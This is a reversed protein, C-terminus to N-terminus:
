EDDLIRRLPDHGAVLAACKPRDTIESAVREMLRFVIGHAFAARQADVVRLKRFAGLDDALYKGLIFAAREAYSMETMKEMEESSVNPLKEPVYLGGNEALGKVIAEAGSVKEGGRTSIFKM